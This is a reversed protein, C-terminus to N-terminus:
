EWAVASLIDIEKATDFHRIAAFMCIVSAGIVSAMEADEGPEAVAFFVAVITVMSSGRAYSIADHAFRHGVALVGAGSLALAVGADPPSAGSSTIALGALLTGIATIFAERRESVLALLVGGTVILVLGAFCRWIMQQPATTAEMVAVPTLLAAAVFGRACFRHLSYADM